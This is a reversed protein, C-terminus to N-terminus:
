THAGQTTATQYFLDSISRHQNPPVNQLFEAMSVEPPPVAKLDLKTTTM